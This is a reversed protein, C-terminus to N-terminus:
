DDILEGNETFNQWANDRLFEEHAQALLDQETPIRDQCLMKQIEKTLESYKM